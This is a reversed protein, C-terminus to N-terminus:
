TFWPVHQVAFCFGVGVASFAIWGAQSHFGGLAIQEAGANGILILTAILISNLIFVLTIGLPLLILSRPFRCEKRFVLLWLAGFALILGVGELGSCQPAIQVRFRQTGIVMTVPNSIIGSVFPTLFIKTLEFTLYSAPQWLRRVVNGSLCALVVSHILGYIGLTSRILEVWITWPLFALGALGIASIGAAFWSAALLNVWSGSGGSRFLVFSLGVFIAMACCHAALLIRRVANQEIQDFISELARKKRLYAFTLFIVPFGVVCRLIWAGWDHM